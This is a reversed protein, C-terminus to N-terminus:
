VPAGGERRPRVGSMVFGSAALTPSRDLRVRLNQPPVDYQLGHALEEVASTLLAIAPAEGPCRHTTAVDHPSALTSDFEPTRPRRPPSAAARHM